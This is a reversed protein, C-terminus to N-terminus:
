RVYPELDEVSPAKGWKKIVVGRGMLVFGPNGRVMTKLVTQDLFYVPYDVSKNERFAEIELSSGSALGIFPLNSSHKQLVSVVRQTALEVEDLKYMVVCLVKELRLISDTIEAGERDTISFDHIPPAYGKQILVTKRDVYQAGPIDWPADSTKFEQDRGDVKYIWTDRYLDRPANPPIIMAKKIDVGEKYPRFDILPLGSLVYAATGGFFLVSLVALSHRGRLSFLRYTKGSMLLMAVFILLVVDKFFSQWPTLPIADGFCGCDTVKNYYASYFTLFAFFITMALLLRLVSRSWLGMFLCVGLFFESFIVTLSIVLAYPELFPLGLVYPSFYEELKYMLGQPDNLKVLGSFIFTAASIAQLVRMALVDRNMM